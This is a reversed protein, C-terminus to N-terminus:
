GAPDTELAQPRGQHPDIGAAKWWARENGVRHVARHHVRCLPVTFEDSVKRGLARPQMFRLHHPDSPKRGCILCPKSPSSACTSRTAIAGRSPSRSSARTSARPASRRRRKDSAATQRHALSRCGATALLTMPPKGVTDAPALESLRREFADEVLKADAATLSNKAALAERAWSAAQDASTIGALEGLLRDRLVASQDPTSSSPRRQARRLRRPCTRQRAAAAARTRGATRQPTPLRAANDAAPSRRHPAMVFIPRM